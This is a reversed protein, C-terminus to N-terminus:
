AGWGKGPEAQDRWGVSEWELMALALAALTIFAKCCARGAPRVLGGVVGTLTLVM